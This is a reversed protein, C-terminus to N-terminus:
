SLKTQEPSNGANVLRNYLRKKIDQYTTSSLFDWGQEHSELERFFMMLDRNEQELLSIRRTYKDILDKIVEDNNLNCKVGYEKLEQITMYVLQSEPLDKWETELQHKIDSVKQKKM